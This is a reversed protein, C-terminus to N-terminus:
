KNQEIEEERNTKKERRKKEREGGTKEGKKEEEPAGVNIDRQERKDRRVDRSIKLPSIAVSPMVTSHSPLPSPSPSSLALPKSFAQSPSCTLTPTAAAAFPSPPHSTRYCFFFYLPHFFSSLLIIYIYFSLSLLTSSIYKWFYFSMWVQSNKIM